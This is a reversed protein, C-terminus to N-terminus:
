ETGTWRATNLVQIEQTNLKAIVKLNVLDKTNTAACLVYTFKVPSFTYKLSKKTKIKLNVYRVNLLIHNELMLKKKQVWCSTRIASIESIHGLDEKKM